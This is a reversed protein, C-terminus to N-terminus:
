FCFRDPLLYLALEETFVNLARSLVPVGLM